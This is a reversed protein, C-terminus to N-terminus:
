AHETVEVSFGVCPDILLTLRQALARAQQADAVTVGLLQQRLTGQPHFNWETPALIQYDAVQEGDLVLSHILRGRASPIQALGTGPSLTPAAQELSQNHLREPLLQLQYILKIFRVTLGHLNKTMKQDNLILKQDILGTEFCDGQWQPACCFDADLWPQLEAANLVPLATCGPQLPVAAFRQELRQLCHDLADEPQGTQLRELRLSIPLQLLAPLPELPPLALAKFAVPALQLAPKHSILLRAYFRNFGLLAAQAETKLPAGDETLWDRWLRLLQERGQEALLLQMRAQRLAVGAEYGLAQEAATLAAIQQALGCLSFLLPLQRVVQGIPRGRFLRGASRPRTSRIELESITQQQLKLEITLAGALNM